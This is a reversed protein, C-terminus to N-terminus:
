ITNGNENEKYKILRVLIGSAKTAGIGNIKTLTNRKAMEDLKTISTVGAKVLLEYTGKPLGLNEIRDGKGFYITAVLMRRGERETQEIFQRSVGLQHGIEELTKDNIYRETLVYRERDNLKDIAKIIDKHINPPMEKGFTKRYLGEINM